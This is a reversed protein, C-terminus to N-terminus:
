YDFASTKEINKLKEEAERPGGLDLLALRLRGTHRARARPRPMLGVIRHACRYKGTKDDAEGGEREGEKRGEAERAQGPRTAIGNRRCAWKRCHPM